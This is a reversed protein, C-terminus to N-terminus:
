AGAFAEDVYDDPHAKYDDLCELIRQAVPLIEAYRGTERLVTIKRKSALVFALLPSFRRQGDLLSIADDIKKMGDDVQGLHTMVLGIEAETRLAEPVDDQQQLLESLQVAWRMWQEDDHRMRSANVLLELVERKYTPSNKVSDHRLLSECIQQAVNQRQDYVSM